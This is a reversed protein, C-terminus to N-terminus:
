MIENTLIKLGARYKLRRAYNNSTKLQYLRYTLYEIEVKKAIENDKIKDIYASFDTILPTEQLLEIAEVQTRTFNESLDCITVTTSLIDHLLAAVCTDEDQMKNAIYTLHIIFPYGNEDIEDKHAQTAIKKAM